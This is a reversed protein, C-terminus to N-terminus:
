INGNYNNFILATNYKFILINSIIFNISFSIPVFDNDNRMDNNNNNMNINNNNDM